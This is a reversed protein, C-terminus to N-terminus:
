TTFHNWADSDRGRGKRPLCKKSDELQKWSTKMHSVAKAAVVYHSKCLGRIFQPNPCKHFM